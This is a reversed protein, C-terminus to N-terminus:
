IHLHVSIVAFHLDSSKKNRLSFKIFVMEIRFTMGLSESKM